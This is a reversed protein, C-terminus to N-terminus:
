IIILVLHFLTIIAENFWILCLAIWISAELFLRKGHLVEAIHFPQYGLLLIHLFLSDVLIIVLDSWNTFFIYFPACVFIVVFLNFFYLIVNVHMKRNILSWLRAETFNAGFYAQLFPRSFLNFLCLLSGLLRFLIIIGIVRRFADGLM